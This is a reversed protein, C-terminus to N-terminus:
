RLPAMFSWRWLLVVGEAVEWEGGVEGLAGCRSCMKSAARLDAFSVVAATRSGFPVTMEKGSLKNCCIGRGTNLCATRAASSGADADWAQESEWAKECKSALM